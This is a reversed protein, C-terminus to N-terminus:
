SVSPESCTQQIWWVVFVDFLINKSTKKIEGGNLKQVWYINCGEDM